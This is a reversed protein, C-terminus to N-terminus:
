RVLRVAFAPPLNGLVLERTGRHKRSLIKSTAGIRRLKRRGEVGVLPGKFARVGAYEFYTLEGGTALLDMLRRFISRVLPPPFNNFPLGCIIHDFGAEIDVSEIPGCHLDVRTSPHELRFPKLVRSELRQCLSPNIEVIHLEDGARLARLLPKTFPGTGPGVELIRKPHKGGRVSRTMTRALFSSSPMIAGTHQHDKLFQRVLVLM